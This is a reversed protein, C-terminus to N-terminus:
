IWFSHNQEIHIQRVTQRQLGQEPMGPAGKGFLSPHKRQLERAVAPFDKLREHEKLIIEKESDNFRRKGTAGTRGSPGAISRLTKRKRKRGRADIDHTEKEDTDARATAREQKEQDAASRERPPAPAKKKKKAAREQRKRRAEPTESLPRKAAGTGQQLTASAAM